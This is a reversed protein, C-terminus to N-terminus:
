GRCPDGIQAEELPQRNQLLGNERCFDMEGDYGAHRLAESGDPGLIVRNNGSGSKRPTRVVTYGHRKFCGNPSDPHASM